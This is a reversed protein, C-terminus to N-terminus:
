KHEIAYDKDIYAFSLKWNTKERIISLAYNTAMFTLMIGVSMLLREKWVIPILSLWITSKMGTAWIWLAGGVSHQTFTAGIARAILWKDAFLYAIFPITWYLAYYWAARGEPHAWFAIMAVAPAVLAWKKTGKMFYLVAFLVPVLRILTTIEISFGSMGWNALQMIAVIALGWLGIFAGAIPGFFDFLSFRLDTAGIIESFPVNMTVLGILIFLIYFAAKEKRTKKM